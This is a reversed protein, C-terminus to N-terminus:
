PRFSLYISTGFLISYLCLGANCFVYAGLDVRENLCNHVVNGGRWSHEFCAAGLGALGIAANM